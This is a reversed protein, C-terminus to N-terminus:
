SHNRHVHHIYGLSRQLETFGLLVTFVLQATVWVACHYSGM